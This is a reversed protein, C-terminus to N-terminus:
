AEYGELCIGPKSQSIPLKELDITTAVRRLRECVHDPLNPLNGHQFYTLAKLAVIANFVPGYIAKAAALGNRWRSV